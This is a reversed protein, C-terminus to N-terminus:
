SSAGDEDLWPPEMTPAEVHREFSRWWSKAGDPLARDDCAEVADRLKYKADGLSDTVSTDAPDIALLEEFQLCRMRLRTIARHRLVHSEALKLVAEAARFWGYDISIAILGPHVSMAGHVDLEPEIVVADTRTAYELEDRTTEDILIETSRMVIAFLDADRMTQRAPLGVGKSSIVYTRDAGMEEMAFQAPLNERVGGDVYTESGLPVPRFVAPISCSALVGIALPHPGADFVRGHRDLLAGTETMFRLAGSELGVMAIRLTTGSSRVKAPDFVEPDLLRLLVPGPRYMSKTREMGQHISLLDNGIRPLKAVNSFLQALTGLSWEPEIDEDPQLALELPGLKTTRAPSPTSPSPARLFPLRPFARPALDPAPPRPNILELWGPAETQARVLWPRPTFMEAPERLALWINKVSTTFAHQAQRDADQALGAALIAGASAGVFTDPTFQPDNRYLYDLAGLQFSARSGGGSLVCAVTEQRPTLNSM